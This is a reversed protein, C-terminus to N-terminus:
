ARDLNISQTDRINDLIEHRPHKAIVEAVKFYGNKTLSVNLETLGPM